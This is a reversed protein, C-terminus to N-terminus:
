REDPTKARDAFAAPTWAYGEGWKLRSKGATLTFSSSPKLSLFGEFIAATASWGLYSYQIDTNIKAYFGTIGKEYSADMQWTANYEPVIKREDRDFLNLKYFAADQDLGLFLPRAELYGRLSYSKKETEALDFSYEDQAWSIGWTLVLAIIFAIRIRM